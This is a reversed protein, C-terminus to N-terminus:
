RFRQYARAVLGLVVALVFFALIRYLQQVNAMDVVFLKLVTVGFLIMAFWRLRARQLRFGLILLLTAFATWFVTLALQGRWRWLLSDGDTLAQSVFWGHIDLSFILWVLTIGAVGAVGIL